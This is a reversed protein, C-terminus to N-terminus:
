KQYVVEFSVIEKPAAHFSLKNSGEVSLAQLRNEGLSINYAEEIGRPLSVQFDVPQSTSNYFRYVFSGGRESGKVASLIMANPTSQSVYMYQMEHPLMVRANPIPRYFLGPMGPGQVFPRGGVFKNVDVSQVATYPMSMFQAAYAAVSASVHDGEYPYLSFRYKQTGFCEGEPTFWDESLSSAAEEVSGTIRNVARLLTMALTNNKDTMQEYEYLGENFVALGCSGDEVGFFDTNPHTKDDNYVSVKNRTLIDFPQGAYNTDSVLGTPFLVRLRHQKVQNEVNMRVDLTRSGKNLTLYIRVSISERNGNRDLPLKYSIQRTQSLYTDDLTIVKAKVKESTLIQKGDNEYYNYATGVDVNDELLLLNRYVKGSAKETLDVTGNEHINVILFDNEMYMKEPRYPHNIKMVGRKQPTLTLIRHSMGPLYGVDLKIYYANVTKGGPLNIPSLIRKSRNRVINTITFPIKAGSHDTIKFVGTDEDAPIEVVADLPTTCPVQSSNMCLILYQDKKLGRRDVHNLLSETGRDILDTANENVRKFRDMMHEHVADVSCGCISDHPHNQILVKWMYRDYDIPFDGVKMVSTFAYLPELKKELLAQMRANWQKLYVRSALTGTLVNPAGNDRFEGRFTALQVGNQKLEAKVRDMFEPLTDQFFAEDKELYPQAAELAATLDEQAELHDVGNMLLYNSTSCCDACLKGRNRALNLASEPEVPFRQANNYWFRMHECLVKSGDESEWFFETTKAHNDDGRDFGRGFVCTDLGYRSLIQPLQSCLGFQDAAYGVQMCKGFDNAIKTGIILNRVTAEGSTLHFDNQVYWPGVLIRGERIYKKLIREREPRIELYDDLVITQADLHFRYGHDKKLIDILHDILDVLRMRFNELPIYWERDWHTHSIVCYKKAANTPNAM